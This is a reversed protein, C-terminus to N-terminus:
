GISREIVELIQQTSELLGSKSLNLEVNTYIGTECQHIIEILKNAPDNSMGKSVLINALDRRILQTNYVQLRDYLYNWICRDLEEYFIKGPSKLTLRAPILLDQLPLVPRIPENVKKQLESRTKIRKNRAWLFITTGLVFFGSAILLWGPSSGSRKPPGAVKVPKDNKTKSSITIAIPKTSVKKYTRTRLDFFSFSVPPISYNGPKDSVFFYKFNREGAIPVVQKNFTDKISPEFVEMAAPWNIIPASVRQFNGSGNIGITLSGEENKSLSDKEVFAKIAFDGVAGAFSDAQNKLPLPKVSIVLPHSKINMKYVEANDKKDGSENGYMNESVEQERKKTEHNKSFEVLNSLEMADITFEGAELPYLQVKRLIHVDFMHGNWKEESQANDNVNIMDYVSFGYFGPNKIINSKSELRSYLKFTAVLPEGIFCTQKDIFLKLFLNEQIKKYPDEGAKLFYSSEGAEGPSIIKVFVDNSKLLKGNVQCTAGPIKFLGEKIGALTVVLNKHTSSKNGSYIKPGAVVRFSPFPPVSFDSIENANEVTYQVQFSENAPIPFQPVITKFTVQAFAPLVLFYFFISLFLFSLYRKM